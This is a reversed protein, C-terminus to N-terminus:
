DTVSNQCANGKGGIDYVSRISMVQVELELCCLTFQTRDSIIITELGIIISSLGIRESYIANIM